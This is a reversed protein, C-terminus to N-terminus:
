KIGKAKLEEKVRSLYDPDPYGFCSPGGSMSTKHHIDNWTVQDDQGTTRSTGVTFILKQDFATKLLKLVENGEKNDPLYATRFIGSYHGGPKPHKKTQKGSPIDYTIIIHGCGPFGPLSGPSQYWTMKGDPQDGEMMGFVDKCIPCIPGNHKKTERLCDECFEHKCKLRKKNTFLDLCISCKEDNDGGGTAGVGSPADDNQQSPNGNLEPENFAEESPSNFGAAGSPLTLPLPSTLVKQYLRLLARVAHSEMAANGGARNYVAKVNVEGQGNSSEKFDVNFKSKITAVQQHCSSIKKWQDQGMTLGADTLPDIITMKIKLHPSQSRFDGEESETKQMANITKRFVGQSTSPGFVSMEESTTTILLKNEHKSIIRLADRWNHPALIKLPVVSGNCDPLCKQVLDTFDSLAAAPAGDDQEAEFKVIVESKMKVGNRQAIREIEEKYVHNMYWFHSVAVPCEESPRKGDAPALGAASVGDSQGGFQGKDQYFVVCGSQSVYM